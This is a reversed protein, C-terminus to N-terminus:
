HFVGPLRQTRHGEQHLGRPRVQVCGIGGIEAEARIRGVLQAAMGVAVGQVFEGVQGGVVDFDDMELLGAVAGGQVAYGVAVQVAAGHEADQM